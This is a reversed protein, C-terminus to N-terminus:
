VSIVRRVMFSMNQSSFHEGCRDGSRAGLGSERARRYRSRHSGLRSTAATLSTLPRKTSEGVELEKCLSHRGQRWRGHSPPATCGQGARRLLGIVASLPEAERLCRGCSDADDPWPWLRRKRGTQSDWAIGILRWGSRQNDTRGRCIRKTARSEIQEIDAETLIGKDKLHSVLAKVLAHASIGEGLSLTLEECTMGEDATDAM